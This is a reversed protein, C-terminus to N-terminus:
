QFCRAARQEGREILVGFLMAGECVRWPRENVGLLFLEKAAADLEDCDAATLTVRDVRRGAMEEAELLPAIERAIKNIREWQVHAADSKEKAAGIRALAAKRALEVGPFLFSFLNM